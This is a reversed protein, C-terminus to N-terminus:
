KVRGEGTDRVQSVLTIRKRLMLDTLGVVSMSVTQEARGRSSVGSEGSSSAVVNMEVRALERLVSAGSMVLVTEKVVEEGQNALSSREM